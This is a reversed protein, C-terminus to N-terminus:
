HKEIFTEGGNYLLANELVNLRHTMLLQEVNQISSFSPQLNLGLLEQLRSSSGKVFVTRIKDAGGFESRDSFLFKVFLSLISDQELIKEFLQVLFLL